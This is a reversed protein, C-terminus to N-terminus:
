WSVPTPVLRTEQTTDGIQGDSNRGWCYLRSDVIACTHRGGATVASAGSPFVKYFVQIGGITDNGIQGFDNHGVCFLQNFSDVYCTHFAGAAPVPPDPLSMLAQWFAATGPSTRCSGTACTSNGDGAIQGMSDSGWCEMQYLYQGYGIGVRGLSCTHQGGASIWETMGTESVLWTPKLLNDTNGVGLQGSQNDGWCVANNQFTIACTHQAGCDVFIPSSVAVKQPILFNSSMSDVGVQGVGNAGWCWVDGNRLACAHLSGASMLTVGSAMGSVPVPVNSPMASGDGLQGVNNNGWCWAAGSTTWACSFDQGAVIGAVGGLGSVPRPSIRDMESGDGLQGASNDGWCFPTGDSTVACTHSEGASVSSFARICTGPSRISEVFGDSCSVLECAGAGDCRGTGNTIPCSKEPGPWPDLACACSGDCHANPFCPNIVTLCTVPSGACTGTGDCSDNCSCPDGDDCARGVPFAYNCNSTGDPHAEQECQGIVVPCNLFTGACEGSVCKDDYTGVDGDDCSSDDVLVTWDVTSVDPRCAYCSRVPDVAGPLRCNGGIWCYGAALCSPEDQPIEVIDVEGTEEDTALDTAVDTGPDTAVDKGPDVEENTGPDVGQDPVDDTVDKVSDDAVGDSATEGTADVIEGSSDRGVDADSIGTDTLFTDVLAADFVDGSDTEVIDSGVSSGCGSALLPSALLVTVAIPLFFQNDRM